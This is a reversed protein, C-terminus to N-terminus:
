AVNAHLTITANVIGPRDTAHLKAQTLTFQYHTELSAFWQCFASFSVKTLTLTLQKQRVSVTIAQSPLGLTKLSANLSTLSLATNGQSHQSVPTSLARKMLAQLERASTYDQQLRTNAQNLPWFVFAYVLGVVILAALGLLLIQEQTTKSQYYAQIQTKM